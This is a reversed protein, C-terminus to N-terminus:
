MLFNGKIGTQYSSPPRAQDQAADFDFIQHQPQYRQQQNIHERSHHLHLPPQYVQQHRSELQFRLQTNERNLRSIESEHLKDKLLIIEKHSAQRHQLHQQLEFVQPDQHRPAFLPQDQPASLQQDQLTSLHQDPPTYLKQDHLFSPRHDHSSYLQQDHLSFLQDQTAFIYECDSSPLLSFSPQAQHQPLPQKV